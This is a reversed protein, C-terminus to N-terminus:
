NGLAPVSKAKRRKIFAAFKGVKRFNLFVSFWLCKHQRELKTKYRVM